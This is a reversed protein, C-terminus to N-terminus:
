PEAQSCIVHVHESRLRTMRQGLEQEKVQWFEANMTKGDGTRPIKQANAHTMAFMVVKDSFELFQTRIDKLEQEYSSLRDMTMLQTPFMRMMTDMRNMALMLQQNDQVLTQNVEGVVVPALAVPAQHQFKAQDQSPGPPAASAYQTCAGNDRHSYDCPNPHHESQCDPGYKGSHELDPSPAGTIYLHCKSCRKITMIVSVPTGLKEPSSDLSTSPTSLM